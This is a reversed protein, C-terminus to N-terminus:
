LRISKVYDIHEKSQPIGTFNVYLFSNIVDQYTAGEELEGMAMNNYSLFEGQANGSLDRFYNGFEDPFKNQLFELIAHYRQKGDICDFDYGRGSKLMEESIRKWPNYKFLFKGIEIRNYISHILLQKQEQTWVLERQFFVEKGDADIVYPNFNIGGHSMGIFKEDSKHCGENITKVVVESYDNERSRGYGGRFLLGNIDTSIFRVRMNPRFPNAGCDRTSHTIYERKIWSQHFHSVDQANSIKIGLEYPLSRNYLEVLYVLGHTKDDFSAKVLGSERFTQPTEVPYTKLNKGKGSQGTTTKVWHITVVVEDGIKIPSSLRTKILEEKNM